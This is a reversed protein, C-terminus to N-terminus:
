KLERGVPLQGPQLFTKVLEGEGCVILGSFKKFWKGEPVEPNARLWEALLEFQEGSIKRGIARDLLHDLLQPPIGTRRIRPM